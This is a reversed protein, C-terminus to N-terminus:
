GMGGVQNKPLFHEVIFPMFVMFFLFGRFAISEGYKEVFDGYQDAVIKITQCV